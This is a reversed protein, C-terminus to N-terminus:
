EETRKERDAAAGPGTPGIIARNPAAIPLGFVTVTSHDTTAGSRKIPNEMLAAPRQM